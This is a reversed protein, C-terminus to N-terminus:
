EKKSLVKNPDLPTGAPNEEPVLNKAAIEAATVATEAKGILADFLNKLVPKATVKRLTSESSNLVGLVRKGRTKNQAQLEELNIEYEEALAKIQEDTLSTTTKRGNVFLTQTKNEFDVYYSIPYKRNTMLTHLFIGFGTCICFIGVYKYIKHRIKESRLEILESRHEDRNTIQDAYRIQITRENLKNEKWNHYLYLLGGATIGSLATISKTKSSFAETKTPTSVSFAISALIACIIHKKM